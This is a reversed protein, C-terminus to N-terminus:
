ARRTAEAPEREAGLAARFAQRAYHLRRWVTAEPCNLIKAIEKGPLGEMEYLVFTVRQQESLQGLATEIRSRAVDDGLSPTSVAESHPIFSLVEALMSTLRAKRRVKRAETICLRYLWTSLESERRFRPLYRFMQLFVEQTADELDRERVGLERLFATAVGFYRRHLARWAGSDGEVCSDLLSREASVISIGATGLDAFGAGACDAFDSVRSRPKSFLRSLIM